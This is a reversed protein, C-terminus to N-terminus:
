PYEELEASQVTEIRRGSPVRPYAPHTPSFAGFRLSVQRFHVKLVPLSSDTALLPSLAIARSGKPKAAERAGASPGNEPGRFV